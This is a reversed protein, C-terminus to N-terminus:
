ETPKKRLFLYRQVIARNLFWPLALLPLAWIWLGRFDEWHFHPLGPIFGIHLAWAFFCYNSLLSFALVRVPATQQQSTAEVLAYLGFFTVTYWPWFWPTGLACYLLWTLTVWRIFSLVPTPSQRWGRIARWCLLIYLIGFSGMSLARFVGEAPSAVLPPVPFGLIIVLTNYVRTLFDAPTNVALETAPNTHLVNLIAGGKWFPAYLLVCIGTYILTAAVTSQLRRPQSAWLFILLGPFLLVANIKLCTALALMITALLYSRPTAQAKPLLFWVALLVLLLLTADNHANVCAEFLLLPNWAFALTALIRRQPSISGILRQLRGSISWVLFTSGLHMALGFLRLGLLMSVISDKGFLILLPWQLACTIIIWTPGYASPQRTWFVHPYAPDRPFAKPLNTLPNHHYLVGIRAYDIYSFIDQSTVVPILICTIGLLITSYLIYRYSIHQPLRRLALVYLLFVLLFAALLVPVEKWTMWTPPVPTPPMGPLRPTITRGPFLLKTPLLPWKSLKTLLAEHFWLGRLPLIADLFLIAAEM